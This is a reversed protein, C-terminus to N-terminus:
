RNFWEELAELLHDYDAQTNYGQVSVRIFVDDGHGTIPIEINRDFLFDKLATGDTGAPLKAIGLQPPHPVAPYMDAEGTLKRIRALTDGLLETCGSRV